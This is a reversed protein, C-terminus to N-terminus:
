FTCVLRYGDYYYTDTMGLGTAGSGNRFRYASRDNGSGQTWRPECGRVV